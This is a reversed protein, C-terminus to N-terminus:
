TDELEGIDLHKMMNQSHDSMFVADDEKILHHIKQHLFEKRERIDM